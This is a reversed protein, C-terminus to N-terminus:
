FLYTRSSGRSVYKQQYPFVIFDLERVQVVIQFDQKLHSLLPLGAVTISM